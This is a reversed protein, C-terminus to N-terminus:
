EGIRAVVGLNTSLKCVCSARMARAEWVRGQVRAGKMARPRRGVVRTSEVEAALRAAAPPGGEVESAGPPCGAAAATGPLLRGGPVMPAAAAAPASAAAATTPRTLGAAASAATAVLTRAASCFAACSSSCPSTPVVWCAPVSWLWTLGVILGRDM